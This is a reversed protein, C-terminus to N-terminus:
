DKRIVAKFDGNITLPFKSKPLTNLHYIGWVKKYDLSVKKIKLEGELSQSEMLNMSALAAGDGHNSLIISRINAYYTGAATKELSSITDEGSLQKEILEPCFNIKFTQNNMLPSDYELLYFTLNYVTQRTGNVPYLSTYYQIISDNNFFLFKSSPVYNIVTWVEKHVYAKGNITAHGVTRVKTLVNIPDKDCNCFTMLLMLFLIPIYLKRKIMM